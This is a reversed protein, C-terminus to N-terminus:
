VLVHKIATHLNSGARVILKGPLTVYEPFTQPDQFRCVYVKIKNPLIGIFLKVVEKGLHNKIAEVLFNFFGAFCAM